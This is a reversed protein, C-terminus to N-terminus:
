YCAYSFQNCFISHAVNFARKSQLAIAIFWVVTGIQSVTWLLHVAWTATLLPARLHVRLLWSSEVAPEACMPKKETRPTKRWIHEPAIQHATTLNTITAYAANTQGSPQM